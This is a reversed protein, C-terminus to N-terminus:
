PHPHPPIVDDQICDSFMDERNYVRKAMRDEDILHSLTDRLERSNKVNRIEFEKKTADSSCCHITGMGFIRQWPSRRLTLDMVRYLRVEDETVTFFGSKIILRDKFLIYSTLTWPLGLFNRKKETLISDEM